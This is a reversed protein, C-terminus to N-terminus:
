FSKHHCKVGTNLCMRVMRELADQNWANFFDAHATQAGGSSLTVRSGDIVPYHIALELRPVAVPHSQPCYGRQAYAMHSKHDASDLDRGNWCDPFTIILRLNEGKACQGPMNTHPVRRAQGCRWYVVRTSQPATANANGAIVRLGAPFPRIQSRPHRGALYYATLNSASVAAGRYRLTPLWYAARDENRRCTTGSDRLSGYTSNANTSVNAFFDHSHSAGSIGPFVIPDDHLRHHYPCPSAFSGQTLARTRGVGSEAVAPAVMVVLLSVAIWTWSRRM